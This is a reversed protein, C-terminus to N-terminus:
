FRSDLTKRCDEINDFLGLVYEAGNRLFFLLLYFYVLFGQELFNEVVFVDFLPKIAPNVTNFGVQSRPLFIDKFAEQFQVFVNKRKVFNVRKLLFQLQQVRIIKIDLGLYSLLQL